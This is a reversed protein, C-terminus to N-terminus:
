AVTTGVYVALIAVQRSGPKHILIYLSQGSRAILECENAIATKRGHEIHVTFHKFLIRQRIRLWHLPPADMTGTTPQLVRLRLNIRYASFDTWTAKRLAMCYLIVITWGQVLSPHPLRSRPILPSCRLACTHYTCARVVNTVHQNFTLASDLTVGVGSLKVADAFHVVTGALRWVSVLLCRYALLGSARALSSRRERETEKDTRRDM